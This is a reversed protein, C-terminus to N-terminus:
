IAHAEVISVDSATPVVRSLRFGSVALLAEYETATREQGGLNVLMNLDAFATEPTPDPEPIVREVLLLTTGVPCDRRCVRLIAAARDDDWDHIVFKLLYADAAPVAQFFSGARVTCRDQVGAAALVPAAGAVVHELDFVIGRLDPNRALIAALMAGRGGGVDVLTSYPSFDYGDVVSRAFLATTSTMADDFIASEEPHEARFAWVSRGHLFEFANEGTRVSHELAGWAQWHASRGVFRAWGAMTEPTDTRLADGVETCHYRGGDDVRYLGVAVLARLLRHLSRPHCGTAVALDAATRPEAAILDSLGLTAAVYVAQSVRFANAM